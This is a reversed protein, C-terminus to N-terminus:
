LIFTFQYTLVKVMILVLQICRSVCLTDKRMPLFHVVIGTLIQAPTNTLILLKPTIVKIGLSSRWYDLKYELDIKPPPHVPHQKIGCNFLLDSLTLSLREDMETLIPDVFYNTQYKWFFNKMTLLILLQMILCNLINLWEMAYLFLKTQFANSVNFLPKLIKVTELQPTSSDTFHIPKYKTVEIADLKETVSSLFFCINKHAETCRDALETKQISRDLEYKFIRLHTLFKERDHEMIKSRAMIAGCGYECQVIELPCVKKHEEMCDRPIDGLGCNNPCAIPFKHCKEKHESSILEREATIGCFPCYCPCETDLHSKRGVDVRAIKGVWGCGEKKNPCYFSKGNIERQLAKDTFTKFATKRCVPCEEVELQDNSAGRITCLEAKCFM